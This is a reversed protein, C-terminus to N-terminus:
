MGIAPSGLHALVTPLMESLVRRAASDPLDLLDELVSIERPAFSRTQEQDSHMLLQSQVHLVM